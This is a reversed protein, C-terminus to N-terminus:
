AGLRRANIIEMANCIGDFIEQMREDTFVETDFSDPYLSPDIEGFEFRSIHLVRIRSEQSIEAMSIQYRERIKRVANGISKWDEKKSKM